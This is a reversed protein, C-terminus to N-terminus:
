HPLQIVATTRTKQFLPSQDFHQLAAITFPGADVGLVVAGLVVRTQQNIVKQAMTEELPILRVMKQTGEPIYALGTAFTKGSLRKFRDSAEGGYPKYFRVGDPTLFYIGGPQEFTGGGISSSGNAGSFGVLAAVIPEDIVGGEGIIPIQLKGRLMWPLVANTPLLQSQWATDCTGGSGVGIIIADAGEYEVALAVDVGTIQSAFLEAQHDARRMARITEIIDAGVTHGYPRFTRVGVAELLEMRKLAKEMNVETVGVLCSKWSDVIFRKEEESRGELLPDDLTLREMVTKALAAQKEPNSFMGVEPIQALMHMKAATELALVSGIIDPMAGTGIYSRVRRGVFSFPGTALLETRHAQHDQEIQAVFEKIREAKAQLDPSNKINEPGAIRLEGIMDALEQLEDGALRGRTIDIAHGLDALQLIRGEEVGFDIVGSLLQPPDFGAGQLIQMAAIRSPHNALQLNYKRLEEWGKYHEPPPIAVRMGDFEDYATLVLGQDAPHPKLLPSIDPPIPLLPIQDLIKRAERDRVTLWPHESGLTRILAKFGEPGEIGPHQSYNYQGYRDEINPM